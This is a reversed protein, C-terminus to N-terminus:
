WCLWVFLPDLQRRLGLDRTEHQERLPVAVLHELEALVRVLESAACGHVDADGVGLDRAGMGEDLLPVADPRDAVELGRVPRLHVALRDRVADDAGAVPDLESARRREEEGVLAVLVRRHLPRRGAEPGGNM